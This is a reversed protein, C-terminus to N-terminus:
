KFHDQFNSFYLFSLIRIIFMVQLKERREHEASELIFWSGPDPISNQRLTDM